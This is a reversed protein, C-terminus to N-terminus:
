GRSADLLAELFARREGAAVPGYGLRARLAEVARELATDAADRPLADLRRLTQRVLARGDPGLREIQARDFRFALAADRPAAWLPQAPPPRDLRIVVTGAAVDGLRKGEPSLLMAALGVLYNAPLADVTRLLNRVLSERVGLPLGGDRVVRLGVVRKGLSRGGTAVELAVFYLMELVLQVLLFVAFLTFFASLEQSPDGRPDPVAERLKEALYGALPTGLLLVLALVFEIAYVVALDIGYALIRSSPGAVPFHLAVQEPSRVVQRPGGSLTEQDLELDSM